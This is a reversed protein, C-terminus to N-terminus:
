SQHFSFDILKSCFYFSCYRKTLFFWRLFFLRVLMCGRPLLLFKLSNTPCSHFGRLFLHFPFFSHCLPVSSTASFFVFSIHLFTHMIVSSLLGCFCLFKRPLSLLTLCFGISVFTYIFIYIIHLVFRSIFLVARLTTLNLTVLYLM